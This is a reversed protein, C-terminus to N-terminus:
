NRKLVSNLDAVSDIIEDALPSLIEKNGVGSLVGVVLGAKGSKGTKLDTPTDGVFMVEQSVLDNEQCFDQLVAPDPKQPRPDDGCGIYAFEEEIGLARLIKLTSDRSDSTAVGLIYGQERLEPLITQLDATPQIRDFEAEGCSEIRWSLERVLESYKPNGLKFNNNKIIEAISRAIDEVTGAAIGGDPDLEKTDPDIGVARILQKKIEQVIEPSLDRLSRGHRNQLDNIINDAFKEMVPVWISHFDILTGDKDFLIGKIQKEM